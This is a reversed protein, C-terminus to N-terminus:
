HINLTLAPNSGQGHILVEKGQWGPGDLANTGVCTHVQGIVLAPSQESFLRGIRVQELTQSGVTTPYVTTFHFKDSYFRRQIIGAFINTFDLAIREDM